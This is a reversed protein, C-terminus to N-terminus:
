QIFGKPKNGLVEEATKSGKNYGKMDLNSRGYSKREKIKLSMRREREFKAIDKQKKIVLSNWIVTVSRENNNDYDEQQAKRKEEDRIDKAYQNVRNAFGMYFSSRFIRKQSANTLSNNSSTYIDAFGKAAHYLYSCISAAIGIDTKNGLFMYQCIRKDNKYTQNIYFFKTNTLIAVGYAIPTVWKKITPTEFICEEFVNDENKNKVKSTFEDLSLDYDKLLGRAKGIAAIVEGETSASNNALTIIKKLKDLVKEPIEISM